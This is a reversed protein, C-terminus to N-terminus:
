ACGARSVYIIANVIERREYKFPKGGPKLKPVYPEISKWQKDSIDISYLERSLDM